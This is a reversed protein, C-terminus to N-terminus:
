INEQLAYSNKKQMKYSCEESIPLKKTAITAAKLWKVTQM